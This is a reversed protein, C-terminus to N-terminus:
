HARMLSVFSSRRSGFKLVGGRSAVVWVAREIRGCGARMRCADLVV